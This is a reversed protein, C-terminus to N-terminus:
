SCHPNRGAARAKDRLREARPLRKTLDLIRTSHSPHTSLIEPPAGGGRGMNQWLAVSEAPEFGARAMLDLGILDAESEHVRSYPLLIGVQVGLGLLGFLQQQEETMGSSQGAVQAVIMGAQALQAQSVRENSHGAIVHGVEHGIVTALQHQNEAVALLGTHVGIKRGPLAFANASEDEFVVVEWDEIREGGMAEIIRHAVCEVYSVVVANRSPAADSKIREFSLAGMRAMESSPYLKVQRRGLPSTACSALLVVLLAVSLAKIRLM